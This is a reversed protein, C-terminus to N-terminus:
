GLVSRLWQRGRRVLRDVDVDPLSDAAHELAQHIDHGARRGARTASGRLTSAEDALEGALENLWRSGGSRTTAHSGLAGIVAGVGLAIGVCMLPHERIERTLRYRAEDLSRSLPDTKM